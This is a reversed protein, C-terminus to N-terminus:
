RNYVSLLINKEEVSIGSHHAKLPRKGKERNQELVCNGKALAFYDGLFSLAAEKAEGEGFYPRSLIEEKSYLFFDSAFHTAFLKEFRKKESEKVFFTRIRADISIPYLLCSSIEECEDLYRHRVDILGHDAFAFVLVDKNQKTFKRLFAVIERMRWWTWPSKVGHHHITKDPDPFYGYMFEGGEKFFSSYSKLATKFDKPGEKEVPYLFHLEAKVGAKSLLSAINEYPAYRQLLEEGHEIRDYSGIGSFADIPGISPFNLSWGLYGTELPFKGSLFATTSAVTTAPNVSHITKLKHEFIFKTTRSYLSLNYESAGDFLFVAVKKHGKLAEDVMPISSHFPKVGFHKLISSSFNVLTDSTDFVEANINKLEDIM